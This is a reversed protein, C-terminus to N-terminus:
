FFGCLRSLFLNLCIIGFQLFCLLVPRFIYASDYVENKSQVHNNMVVTYSYKDLIRYLDLNTSKVVGAFKYEYISKCMAHLKSAPM